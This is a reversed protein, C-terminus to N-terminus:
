FRCWGQTSAQSRGRIRERGSAIADDLKVYYRELRPRSKIPFSFVLRDNEQAEKWEKIQLLVREFPQPPKKRGRPRQSDTSICSGVRVFAFKDALHICISILEWTLRTTGDLRSLLDISYCLKTDSVQVTGDTSVKRMSKQLASIEKSINPISSSGNLLGKDTLSQKLIDPKTQGTKMLIDM